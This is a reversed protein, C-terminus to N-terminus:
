RLLTLDGKITEIKNPDVLKNKYKAVFIFVDSPQIQGRFNGDWYPKGNAGKTGAGEPYVLEGWRNYIELSVWEIQREDVGIVVPEFKSNGGDKGDGTADPVFINPFQIKNRADFIITVSSSLICGKDDKVQVTYKLPVEGTPSGEEKKPTVFINPTTANTPTWVYTYNGAPIVTSTINSSQGLLLHTSDAKATVTFTAGTPNVTIVSEAMATCGNADTVTVSYKVPNENDKAPGSISATTAQTNWLYTYPPTGGSPNATLKGDTSQECTAPISTINPSISIATIQTIVTSDCGMKSKLVVTETKSTGGCVNKSLNTVIPDLVTLKLKVTSDCGMKTIIVKTIDQSTNYDMGGITVKEGACVTKSGLDTILVPLETLTFILTSDCGTIPDKVVVNKIGSPGKVIQGGINYSAGNCITVPPLNKEKKPLVIVSFKVISDCGTKAKFKEMYDGNVCYDKKDGSKYCTGFCVKQVGLDTTKTKTVFLILTTISDCGGSSMGSCDVTTPTTYTNGCFTYSTGECITDKKTVKIVSLKTLNLTVISDCNNRGVLKVVYTGTSDYVTTGVAFTQNNCIIKNLTTALKPVVTLNLTITSDCGVSAPLLVNYTGTTTFTQGGVMVNEYSCITKTIVTKIEPRVTLNLTVTSDCGTALSKLKVVYMGSAAFTQTGVSYTKGFCITPDLTTKIADRVKLDLHVTSDCGTSATLKVNYKGTTTFSQGGVVYSEGACITKNVNFDSKVNWIYSCFSEYKKGVCDADSGDATVRECFKYTTGPKLKYVPSKKNVDKCVPPIADDCEGALYVRPETTLLTCDTPRHIIADFGMLTDKAQTTFEYCFEVTNTGSIISVNSPKLDICGAAAGNSQALNIAANAQQSTPYYQGNCVTPDACDCPSDILTCNQVQSKFVEITFNGIASDYPPSYGDVVVYYTQGITLNDAKLYIDDHKDQKGGCATVESFTGATSSCNGNDNKLIAAQIEYIEPNLNKLHIDISCYPPIFKYWVDNNPGCTPGVLILPKWDAAAINSGPTPNTGQAPQVQLMTAGCPTENVYSKVVGIKGAISTDFNGTNVRQFRLFYTSSANKPIFTASVSAGGYVIVANARGCIISVYKTSDKCDAGSPLEYVEVFTQRNSEEVYLFNYEQGTIMGDIKYWADYNILGNVVSNSPTVSSACSAPGNIFNSYTTCCTAFPTFNCQGPTPSVVISPANCPRNSPQAYALYSTCGFLLVFLIVQIGKFSPLSKFM